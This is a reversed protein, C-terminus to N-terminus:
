DITLPRIQNVITHSGTMTTSTSTASAAGSSRGDLRAPPRHRRSGARDPSPRPGRRAASWALAEARRRGARSRPAPGARPHRELGALGARVPDAQLATRREDLFPDVARRADVPLQPYAAVIGPVAEDGLTALYAADLGTRGGAPVIAPNVARELNRDTVYAQPGVVNM